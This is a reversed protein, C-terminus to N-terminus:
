VAHVFTMGPKLNEPNIGQEELWAITKAGYNRVKRLVFDYKTKRPQVYTEGKAVSKVTIYHTKDGKVIVQLRGFSSTELSVNDKVAVATQLVRVDEFLGGGYGTSGAEELLACLQNIDM